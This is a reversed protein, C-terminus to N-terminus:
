EKRNAALTRKYAGDWLCSSLPFRCSDRYLSNKKMLLLPDKIHIIGCVPYGMGCIKNCWNHLVPQFLFYRLPDVILSRDLLGNCGHASARGSFFYYHNLLM